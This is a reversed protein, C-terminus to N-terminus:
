PKLPAPSSKFAVHQVRNPFGLPVSLTHKPGQGREVPGWAAGLRLSCTYDAQIDGEQKPVGHPRDGDEGIKINAGQNLPLTQSAAPHSGPYCSHVGPASPM